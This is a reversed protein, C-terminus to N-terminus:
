KLTDKQEGNEPLSSNKLAFHDYLTQVLLTFAVSQNLCDYVEKVVFPIIKLIKSMLSQKKNAEENLLKEYNNRVTEKM